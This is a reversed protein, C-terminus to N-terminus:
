TIPLPVDCSVVTGGLANKSPTFVIRGGLAEAHKRLSHLGMGSSKAAPHGDFPQGDSSVELSLVRPAFRLSIKIFTPQAHRAANTALEQAIRFLHTKAAVPLDAQLAVCTSHCPIMFFKEIYDALQELSAALGESVIAVPALGQAFGRILETSESIDRTVESALKAEARGTRSLSTALMGGKLLVAAMRQCVDDHLDQGIRIREGEAAELLRRDLNKRETVETVLGGVARIKARSVKQGTPSYDMGLAFGRCEIWKKRSDPFRLCLEIPEARGSSQLGVMWEMAKRRDEAVVARLWSWRCAELEDASEKEWISRYAENVFPHNPRDVRVYWFVDRIGAALRSLQEETESFQEAADSFSRAFLDLEDEDERVTDSRPAAVLSRAHELVRYLRGMDTRQSLMLWFLLCGAALSLGQSISEYVTDHWVMAKSRALVYRLLVVGKSQTDPRTWFPFAAILAEGGSERRIVAEMKEMAQSTLPRAM